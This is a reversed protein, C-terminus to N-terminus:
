VSRNKRRNQKRGNGRRESKKRQTSERRKGFQSARNIGYVKGNKGVLAFDVKGQKKDAGICMVVVKMGVRYKKRSGSAVLQMRAQDYIFYDDGMASIRVLGEITSPLQVINPWFQLTQIPLKM